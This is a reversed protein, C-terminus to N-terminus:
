NDLGFDHPLSQLFLNGLGFIHSLCQLFLNGLGFIHPFCQLFLNGLGSNRDSSKGRRGRRRTWRRVRRRRLSPTWSLASLGTKLLNSPAAMTEIAALRHVLM